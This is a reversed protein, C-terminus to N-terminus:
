DKDELFIEISKPNERLEGVPKGEVSFIQVYRDWSTHDVGGHYIIPLLHEKVLLNNKRLILAAEYLRSRACIGYYESDKLDEVYEGGTALTHKRLIQRRYLFYDPEKGFRSKLTRLDLPKM